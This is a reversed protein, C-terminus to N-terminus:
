HARLTGLRSAFQRLILQAEESITKRGPIPRMWGDICMWLRRLPFFSLVSAFHKLRSPLPLTTAACCFPLEGYRGLHFTVTTPKEDIIRLTRQIALAADLMMSSSRGNLQDQM